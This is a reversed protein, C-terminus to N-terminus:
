ARSLTPLRITFTAGRGLGASAATVTGGHMEVLGKVVALGLGLGGGSLRPDVQMFPEFLRPFVEPAIGAGSDEVRIVAQGSSADRELAIRTQGGRPTFKVANSLLNGVAQVLRTRDGVVIIPDSELLAGAEFDVGSEAFVPRHDEVTRSVLERLDIAEPTLEIKGRSIRTVDLLEDM